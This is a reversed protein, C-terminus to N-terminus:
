TKVIKELVSVRIRIDRTKLILKHLMIGLSLYMRKEKLIIQVNDLGLHHGGIRFHPSKKITPMKAVIKDSCIYKTKPTKFREAKSFSWLHKSTSTNSPNNRIQLPTTVSNM